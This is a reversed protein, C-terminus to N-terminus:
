GESRYGFNSEAQVLDMDLYAKKPYSDALFGQLIIKAVTHVLRVLVIKAQLGNRKIM